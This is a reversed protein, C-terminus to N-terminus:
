LMLMKADESGADKLRTEKQSSMVRVWLATSDEGNAKLVEWEAQHDDM